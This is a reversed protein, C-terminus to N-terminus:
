ILDGYFFFTRLRLRTGTTICSILLKPYETIHTKKLNAIKMGKDM